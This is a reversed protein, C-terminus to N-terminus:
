ATLIISTPSLRTDRSSQLEVSNTVRDSVTVCMAPSKGGLELTLNKLDRAAAAAVKCGTPVSGTFALKDVQPHDCLLGGTAGAGTVVNFV